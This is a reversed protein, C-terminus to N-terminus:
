HPIARFVQDAARKFEDPLMDVMAPRELREATVRPDRLVAMCDALRTLVWGGEKFANPDWHVPAEERLRRYFPYPDRRVEPNLLNSVSLEAGATADARVIARRGQLIALRRKGVRPGSRVRSLAATSGGRHSLRM